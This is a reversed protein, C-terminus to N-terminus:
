ESAILNVAYIMQFPQERNLALSSHLAGSGSNLGL